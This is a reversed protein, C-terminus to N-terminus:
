SPVSQHLGIQVAAIFDSLNDGLLRVHTSAAETAARADNAEIAEIIRMHEVLTGSMRDPQYTVQRRYPALRRSLQLTHASVFSTHSARYLAHHFLVNVKFFRDPGGTEGAAVLEQHLARLGAREAETSRRAAFGACMGELMAMTEFMELLTAISPMAVSAGQRGRMEALGNAVLVKIAERVPTRSVAFRQALESEDLRAGPALAGDVIMAELEARLTDARTAARQKPGPEM